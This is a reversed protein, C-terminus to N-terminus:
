NRHARYSHAKALYAARRDPDAEALSELVEAARDFRGLGALLNVLELQDTREASAMAARLELVPIMLGAQGRRTYAVRLNNLVRITIAEAGIPRLMDPVFAEIPHFRAFLIRCDDYDLRAGRNFPDFWVSPEPGEGLLIHGPMGILRLDIGRRRGVESAVAALSLPIGRRRELVRHILSNAPDYYNAADGKFGLRGFVHDLVTDASGDDPCDEALGDIQGVITEEDPPGAPDVSAIVALVRDLPIPDPGALLENLRQSPEM